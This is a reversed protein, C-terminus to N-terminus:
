KSNIGNLYEEAKRRAAWHTYADALVAQWYEIAKAVDKEVGIGEYYCHGLAVLSYGSVLKYLRSTDAACLSYLEFAKKSDAKTGIGYEYCRGLDYASLITDNEFAQQYWYFAKLSDQPQGHEGKECASALNRFAIAKDSRGQTFTNVSLILFLTLITLHQM